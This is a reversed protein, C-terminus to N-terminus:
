SVSFQGNFCTIKLDKVDEGKSQKLLIHKAMSPLILKHICADIARAGSDESCGADELFKRAAKDLTIHVGHNERVRHEIKTWKLDVIKKVQEVALPYYPVVSVRALFAPKFHKRLEDMVATHVSQREKTTKRKARVIAETGLNSTMVILTNKFDVRVGSGDEMIGKDFVQYFVEIVDTHAKELEDLLVVSYPQRRVAETLVGGQGYGVYGPPSGRLLSVTHAEQYESMNIVITNREGGFFYEALAHATETKGVGSPGALFFVGLPKDPDDLNAKHTMMSDAISSIAEEQGVVREALTSKVQLFAKSEDKLMKGVPVGTWSAVVQAVNDGCVWAFVMGEANARVAALADRLVVLEKDKQPQDQLKQIEASIDQEKKWQEELTKISEILKQEDEQLAQLTKKADPALAGDTMVHNKEYCVADLRRRAEELALPTMKQSIRVRACATDLVSVAKDPLRRDGIYRRSLAVAVHLADNLIRCQHKEQLLDVLARLMHVAEEDSPENVSVPQFRRTMAADKEFYKKYEDWTTAAITQLEGRALFPKLLNSADHKGQEGGMLMHAEDVFLIIPFPAEQIDKIINKLRNEFEGQVGAGAELLGVDLVRITVNNLFEPVHGEVILNALGEVVATKGVGAEGVLIPNNQRIRALVDIVQRIHKDRGWVPAIKGDRAQQTLDITYKDLYETSGSAKADRGEQPAASALTRKGEPLSALLHKWEQAFTQRPIAIVAPLNESCWGLLGKGDLLVYLLAGSQITDVGLEVSAALWANELLTLVHPSLSPTTNNGKKYGKLLRELDGILRTVDVNYHACLAYMDSDKDRLIHTLVHPVDISFHGSAVCLHAAEEFAKKCLPNLRGVLQKISM